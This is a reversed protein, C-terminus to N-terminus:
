WDDKKVQESPIQMAEELNSLLTSMLEDVQQLQNFNDEATPSSENFLTEIPTVSAAKITFDTITIRYKGDKVDITMEYKIVNAISKVGDKNTRYVSVQPKAIIKGNVSDITPSMGNWNTYYKKGWTIVRKALEKSTTGPLEVVEQYKVKQTTEDRPLEPVTVTNKQAKMQQFAVILLVFFFTKKMHKKSTKYNPKIRIIIGVINNTLAIMGLVKEAKKVM